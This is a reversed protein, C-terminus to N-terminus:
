DWSFCWMVGGGIVAGSAAVTGWLGLALAREQHDEFTKRLYWACMAFIARDLALLACSTILMWATTSFTAFVSALVFIMLGSLLVKRYGVQDALTGMPVLLGVMLLPYIDIIWLVATNSAVLSQM